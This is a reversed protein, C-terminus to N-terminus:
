AWAIKASDASQGVAIAAVDVWPRVARGWSVEWAPSATALAAVTAM